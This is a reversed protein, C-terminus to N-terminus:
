KQNWLNRVTHPWFPSNDERKPFQVFVPRKGSFQYFSTFEIWIILFGDAAETKLFTCISKKDTKGQLM